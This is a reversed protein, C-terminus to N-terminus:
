SYASRCIASSIGRPECCLALGLEASCTQLRHPSLRKGHDVPEPSVQNSPGSFRGTRASCIAAPISLDQYTALPKGAPM